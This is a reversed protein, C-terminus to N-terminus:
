KNEPPPGLRVLVGSIATGIVGLVTVIGKAKAPFLDAQASLTTLLSAAFSIWYIVNKNM